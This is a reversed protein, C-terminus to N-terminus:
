YFSIASIYESLRFSVVSDLNFNSEDIPFVGTKASKKRSLKKNDAVYEMASKPVRRFTTARGDKQPRFNRNKSAMVKRKSKAVIKQREQLSLGNTEM